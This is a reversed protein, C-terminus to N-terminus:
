YPLWWDRRAALFIDLLSGYVHKAIFGQLSALIFHFDLLTASATGNSKLDPIWVIAFNSIVQKIDTVNM